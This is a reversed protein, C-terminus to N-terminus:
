PRRRGGPRVTAAPAKPRRTRTGTGARARRVPQWGLQRSLREAFERVVPALEQLRELTLSWAPGSVGIAARVNGTFNMVPAAVCRIGASFEEDDVSIGLARVRAIEAQLGAATTISRPTLPRLETRNLYAQLGEPTQNALLVKGLATCYAPRPTGVREALRWPGDADIQRIVVVHHCDLVALQSTLATKLSLESVLPEGLHGIEDESCAVAALRLLRGGLRYERSEDDQIVYGSTQLTKVMHHTTSFHLGLRRAIETLALRGGHEAIVDLVQLGRRLTRITGGDGGARRRAPETNAPTTMLDRAALTPAHTDLFHVNAIHIDIAKEGQSESRSLEIEHVPYWRRM